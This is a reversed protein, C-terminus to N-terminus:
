TSVQSFILSANQGGFGFSNSIIHKSSFPLPEKLATIPCNSDISSLGVTGPLFNNQLSLVCAVGEIAGAAAITHGIAGKISSVRTQPGLVRSIALSEAIDGLPTGTGHANVYNIDEPRLGACKLARKMSLAAGLGQAHPATANNADISTGVGSIKALPIVGRAKASDSSELVYMAAGEGLMFGNRDRDFPRCREPSLAGLVLFSLLGMPHDMSDHGGVLARAVQGRKIAFYGETIAQAAAACASFNTGNPGEHALHTSLQRVFRHPLHRWPASRDSRLDKGMGERSLKGGELHPFIDEKFEYPTISSLGTGVFIASPQSSWNEIGSSKIADLASVWALHSKRDDKFRDLVGSDIKSQVQAVVSVPLESNTVTGCFRNKQLTNLFQDLTNGGASRIGIGTIWVEKMASASHM